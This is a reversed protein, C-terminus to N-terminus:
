EEDNNIGGETIEVSTYTEAMTNVMEETGGGSANPVNFMGGIGYKGSADEPYSVTAEAMARFRHSRDNQIETLDRVPPNLLITIGKDALMDVVFDSDLFKFFDLLDSTATNSYNPTTKVGKTAEILRGKTYLQIELPVSVPYYREDESDNLAFLTRNISGTKLTVYPLTPATNQQDTWIVSAGQFFMVTIDRITKKVTELNM